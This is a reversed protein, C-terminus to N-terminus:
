RVSDGSEISDRKSFRKLDANIIRIDQVNFNSDAITGRRLARTRTPDPSEDNKGESGRAEADSARAELEKM